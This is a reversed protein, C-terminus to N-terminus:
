VCRKVQKKDKQILESVISQKKYFVIEVFKLLIILYCIKRHLDLNKVIQLPAGIIGAHKLTEFTKNFRSTFFFGQNILQIKGPKGPMHSHDHITVTAPGFLPIQWTDFSM